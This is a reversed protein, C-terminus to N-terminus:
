GRLNLELAKQLFSVFEPSSRTLGSFTAVTTGDSRLIAYLPLAVTGFKEQQMTQQHEYLAGDGDTYLRVRVFKDMVGEVEPRPFMNAEMWRCNTCTYGTFDVFVLKNGQKAAQLAGEYNNLIWEPHKEGTLAPSSASGSAATGMVPPLFSELEGLERGFLGPILWITAALFFIAVTLRAPGVAELALDHPMRFYGLVYLVIMVGIGAWVALVAQRTFIGWHWILDANSLFKMAAAIELFGMVVKVSNMWAGAKPLQSMLQPALALIFFPIAFVTAFALMGALPWLWNGQATMVLLTGVFPATCTFSTLTFVFGMLLAGVFGSGEQSRILSNMRNVLGSPAQIFYTGFLSFAFSLFLATIFLNVWPNAALHNVGGAGYIASLLMGLATFTLVIGVAYVFARYAAKSRNGGSHHTFYSVTIQIMPFVCPTFLSLAGMWAALWIFSQFSQAMIMPKVPDPNASVSSGSRPLVTAGAPILAAVVPYVIPASASRSNTARVGIVKPKGEVKVNTKVLLTAPPLCIHDNCAQFRVAISLEHNGGATNADVTIPLTYVVRDAHIETEMSFNPDFIREPETGTIRGTLKFPQKPPLKITTPLPGGPAQTLSYMHWGDEITGTLTLTLQGGMHVRQPMPAATWKVIQDPSQASSVPLPDLTIAASFLCFALASSSGLKSIDM